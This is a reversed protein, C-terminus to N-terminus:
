PTEFEIRYIKGEIGVFGQGDANIAGAWDFKESIPAGSPDIYWCYTHDYGSYCLGYGNQFTRIHKNEEEIPLYVPEGGLPLLGTRGDRERFAFVM